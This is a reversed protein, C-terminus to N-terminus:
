TRRIVSAAHTVTTSPLNGSLALLMEFLIDYDPKRVDLKGLMKEATRFAEEFASVDDAKKYLNWVCSTSWVL